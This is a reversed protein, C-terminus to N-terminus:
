PSVKIWSERAELAECWKNVNSYKEFIDKFGLAKAMKGYPLHFLDALTLENGALYKQKALIGDYVALTTDLRAAYKAVQAEDTPGEGKM